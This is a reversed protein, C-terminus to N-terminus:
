ILPDLDASVSETKSLLMYSAFKLELIKAKTAGSPEFFGFLLWKVTFFGCLFGTSVKLSM